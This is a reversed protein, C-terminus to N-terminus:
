SGLIGFAAIGLMFTVASCAYALRRTLPRPTLRGIAGLLISVGVLVVAHDPHSVWHAPSQDLFAHGPHAFASPALLVLLVPASRVAMRRNPLHTHATSQTPTFHNM